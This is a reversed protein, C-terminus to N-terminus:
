PPAYKKGQRATCSLMEGFYYFPPIYHRIRTTPQNMICVAMQHLRHIAQIRIKVLAQQRAEPFRRLHPFEQRSPGVPDTLAEVKLAIGFEPSLGVAFQHHPLIVFSLAGPKPIVTGMRQVAESKHALKDERRVAQAIEAEVLAVIHVEAVGSGIGM